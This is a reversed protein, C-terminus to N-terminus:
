EERKPLRPVPMWHTFESSNRAVVDWVWSRVLGGHREIALVTGTPQADEATPLRNSIHTWSVDGVFLPQREVCEIARDLVAGFFVDGLTVKMASLESVLADRNILKLRAM